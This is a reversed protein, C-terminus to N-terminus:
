TLVLKVVEAFIVFGISKISFDKAFVAWCAHVEIFSARFFAVRLLLFNEAVCRFSWGLHTPFGGL